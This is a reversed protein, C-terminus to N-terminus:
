ILAMRNGTDPFPSAICPRSLDTLSQMIVQSMHRTLMQGFQRLNFDEAIAGQRLWVDHVNDDSPLRQHNKFYYVRGGGHM